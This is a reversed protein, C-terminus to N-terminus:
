PRAPGPVKKAEGPALGLPSEHADRTIDYSFLYGIFRGHM